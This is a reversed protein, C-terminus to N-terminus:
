RCCRLFLARVLSPVTLLVRTSRSLLPLALAAVGPRRQKRCKAGAGPRPRRQLQCAGRRDQHRPVVGLARGCRQRGACGGGPQGRCCCPPHPAAARGDETGKASTGGGGREEHFGYRIHFTGLPSTHPHPAPASADEGPAARGGCWSCGCWSCGRCPPPAVPISGWGLLGWAGVAYIGSFPLPTRAQHPGQQPAGAHAAEAPAAELGLAQAQRLLLQEALLYPAAHPKGYHRARLPEGTVQPAYAAPLHLHAAHPDLRCSASARETGGWAETCSKCSQM